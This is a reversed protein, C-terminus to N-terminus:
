KRAAERVIVQRARAFYKPEIEIGIFERCGLKAAAVGTTGCGMFPDLVTAAKFGHIKICNTALKLPFPAPHDQVGNRTEYPIFWINGRCRLDRGGTHKWRKLNTKDAYAVGIALRDLEVDGSRTFHFVFEHLDTVFRKSNIPKFHGASLNYKPNHDLTISKVWHFVNQLKFAQSCLAAIEYPLMPNAPTSGINLFLSGDDKLLLAFQLIWDACWAKFRDRDISDDYKRGYKKGINYPPSTVIVDVSKPELRRLEAHADGCILTTKM